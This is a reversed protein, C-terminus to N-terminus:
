GGWAADIVHAGLSTVSGNAVLFVGSCWAILSRSGDSSAHITAALCAQGPLQIASGSRAGSAANVTSFVANPECDDVIAFTGSTGLWSAGVAGCSHHTWTSRTPAKGPQTTDLTIPDGGIGAGTQFGAIYSLRTGDPAWSLSVIENVTDDVVPWSRGVGQHGPLSLVVISAPPPGGTAPMLAIAVRSGDPSVALGTIPTSAPYTPGFPTAHGTSDVVALQSSAENWKPAADPTYTIVWGGSPNAAILSPGGPIGKLAIPTKVGTELDVVQFRQTDDLELVVGGGPVLVPADGLISGVESSLSDNLMAHANDSRWVMACGIRLTMTSGDAYGFTLLDVTPQLPCSAVENTLKLESVIALMRSLQAANLQAHRKLPRPQDVQDYECLVASSPTGPVLEDGRPSAGDSPEDKLTPSCTPPAAVTQPQGSPLPTVTSGDHSTVPIAVAVVVAAVVCMAAGAAGIALHQRRRRRVGIAVRAYLDTPPPDGPSSRLAAIIEEDPSTM